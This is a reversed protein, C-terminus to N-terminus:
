KTISTSHLWGDTLLETDIEREEGETVAAVDDGGHGVGAPEAHETRRREGRLLQVLLQRPDVVVDAAFDYPTSRMTGALNSPM